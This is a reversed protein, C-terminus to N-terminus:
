VDDYIKESTGLHFGKDIFIFPGLRSFLNYIQNKKGIYCEFGLRILYNCLYLKYFLERSTTEIPLLIKWNNM